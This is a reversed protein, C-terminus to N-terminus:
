WFSSSRKVPIKGEAPVNKVTLIGLVTAVKVDVKASVALEFDEDGFLMKQMVESFVDSDTINLPADIVRSAISLLTENSTENQVKTSNAQTWEDLNLIGLKRDEYFLDAITRISEVGLDVSLEPPIAALVEATGSVRPNSNPDNPDAFPNPLKFDVDTLSFNRILNDLSRGPFELPVTISEIIDLIWDPTNTDNMKKGRVLIKADEGNLYHDMFQDLPSSVSHPCARTLSEPIERVVGKAQAKVDDNARVHILGTIAEAVGILPLSSDCNPVLVEFGLSPVDITLPYDNHVTLAVDAEIAKRGHGDVPVDHLDLRDISYEPMSPIKGAPSPTLQM